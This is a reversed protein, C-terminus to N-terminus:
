RKRVIRRQYISNLRNKIVDINPYTTLLAYYMEYAKKLDDMTEYANAMLFQVQIILDRRKEHKIYREWHHIAQSWEGQLFSIMGIRYLAQVYYQHNGNQSIATLIEHGKDLQKSNIYALALRYQYFDIDLLKPSFGILKEYSKQAGKYDKLFSFKIEAIKEESKVMWFPDDSSEISKKYFELSEENKLLYTSYLEGIQYYLKTQQPPNKELVEKYKHIAMAYQQETVLQQAYLIEKHIRPSFDCSIFLLLFSYFFMINIKSLDHLLTM